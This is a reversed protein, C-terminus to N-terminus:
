AACVSESFSVVGSLSFMADVEHRAQLPWAGPSAGLTGWCSQLCLRRSWQLLNTWQMLSSAHVHHRKALPPTQGVPGLAHSSVRLLHGDGSPCPSCQRCKQCPCPSWQWCPCPSCQQCSM